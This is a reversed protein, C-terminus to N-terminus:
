GKTAVHETLPSDASMQKTKSDFILFNTKEKFQCYFRRNQHM